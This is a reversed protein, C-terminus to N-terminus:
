NTTYFILVTYKLKDSVIPIQDCINENTYM